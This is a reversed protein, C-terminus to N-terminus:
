TSLCTEKNYGTGSFLDGGMGFLMVPIMDRKSIINIHTWM